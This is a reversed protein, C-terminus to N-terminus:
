WSPQLPQILVENNFFHEEALKRSTHLIIIRVKETIQM